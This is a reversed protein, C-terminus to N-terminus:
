SVNVKAKHVAYGLDITPLAAASSSTQGHALSALAALSFTLVEFSRMEAIQHGVLFFM